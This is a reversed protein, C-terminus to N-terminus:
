ADPSARLSALSVELAALDLAVHGVSKFLTVADPEARRLAAIREREHLEAAVAGEDILGAERAQILDGAELWASARTEVVIRARAVTAAPVEAREPRYSGMASIHTGRGVDANAFVPTPSTTVTVVIAAGDLARDPAAPVVPYGRAALRECFSSVHRPNRGVVRIERLPRVSAVAEVHDEALGGVGYLALVSAEPAALLDTAYACAAATRRATLAGGDLLARLHGDADLLAVLGSITPRDDAGTGDGVRLIKCLMEGGPALGPMVVWDRAVDHVILRQAPAPPAAFARGVAGILSGMPLLARTEVPSLVAPASVAM